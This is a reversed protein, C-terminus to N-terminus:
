IIFVPVQFHWLFTLVVKPWAGLKTVSIKRVKSENVYLFPAFPVASLLFSHTYSVHVFMRCMYRVVLSQIVDNKTNNQSQVTNQTPKIVGIVSVVVTTVTIVCTAGSIRYHNRTCTSRCEVHTYQPGVHTYRLTVSTYQLMGTDYHRVHQRTTNDM